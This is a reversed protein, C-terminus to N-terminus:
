KGSYYKQINFDQFYQFYSSSIQYISHDINIGNATLITKFTTSSNPFLKLINYM